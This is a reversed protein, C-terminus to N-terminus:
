FNLTLQIPKKKHKAFTRAYISCKDRYACQGSKAQSFRIDWLDAYEPTGMEREQNLYGVLQMCFFGSENSKSDVLEILGNGVPRGM